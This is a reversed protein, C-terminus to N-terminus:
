QEEEKADEEAQKGCSPCLVVTQSLQEAEEETIGPVWFYEECRFCEVRHEEVHRKLGYEERQYEQGKEIIGGCVYCQYRKRARLRNYASGGSNRM